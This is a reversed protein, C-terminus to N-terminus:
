QGYFDQLLTQKYNSCKTKEIFQELKTLLVFMDGSNAQAQLFRRLVTCTTLVASPTPVPLPDDDDDDDDDDDGNSETRATYKETIAQVIGSDTLQAATAVDDDVAIYENLSVGGFDVGVAKVRRMLAALSVNDDDDDDDDDDNTVTANKVEFGAHKFCNAITAASVSAWVRQLMHLAELVNVTTFATNSEMASTLRDVILCRYHTKLNKIIGQDM